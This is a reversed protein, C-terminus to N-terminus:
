QKRSKYEIKPLAINVWEKRFALNITETINSKVELYKEKSSIWFFVKLLTGNNDLKEVLTKSEPAKLINPFNELVKNIIRKIKVLDNDYDVFFEITVRRKDNASFNKVNEELFKINPIYFEVWDFNKATTFLSNIRKIKWLDEWIKILDWSHYVWQTVMIVWAIFNTLFTRLTFGIGFWIWWMFIWLDVWIVSLTVSFGTILIIVNVTRIIVWVIEDKWENEWLSKELSLSLKDRVVKSLIFTLVVVIIWFIMSLIFDTSFFWQIWGIFNNTSETNLTDAPENAWYVKLNLLLFFIVSLTTKLFM